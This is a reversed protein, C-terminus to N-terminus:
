VWFLRDKYCGWGAPLWAPVLELEHSASTSTTASSGPIGLAAALVGGGWGVGPSIFPGRCGGYGWSALWLLCWRRRRCSAGAVQQLM